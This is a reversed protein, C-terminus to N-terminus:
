APPPHHEFYIALQLAIQDALAHAIRRLSASNDLDANFYQEDIVDYGDIDRATGHALTTGGADEATLIWHASGILRVHTPTTDRQIAGADSSLGLSTALRYRHVTGPGDPTLREELAERTLQGFREPIRAVEVQAMGAVAPASSGQRAYLPHFGCGALALAALVPAAFSLPAQKM